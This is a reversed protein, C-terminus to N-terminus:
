FDATVNPRVFRPNLIEAPRLWNAGDGTNYATATRRTSLRVAGTGM